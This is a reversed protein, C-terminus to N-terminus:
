HQKGNSLGEINEMWTRPLTKLGVGAKVMFWHSEKTIRIALHRVLDIMRLCGIGIVELLCADKLDKLLAHGKNNEHERDWVVDIFGEAM